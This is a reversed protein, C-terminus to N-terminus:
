LQPLSRGAALLLLQSALPFHLSYVGDKDLFIGLMGGIKGIKHSNSSNISNQISIVCM